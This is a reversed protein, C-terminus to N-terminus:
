FTNCFESSLTYLVFMGITNDYEIHGLRTREVHTNDGLAYLDPREILNSLCKAIARALSAKTFHVDNKFQVGDAMAVLPVVGRRLFPAGIRFNMYGNLTQLFDKEETTTTVSDDNYENALIAAITAKKGHVDDKFSCLPPVNPRSQRVRAHQTCLHVLGQHTYTEIVSPKGCTQGARNGYRLIEQCFMTFFRWDIM